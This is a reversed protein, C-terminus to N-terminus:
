LSLEAISHYFVSKPDASFGHWSVLMIFMAM